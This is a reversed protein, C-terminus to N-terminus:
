TSCNLTGAVACFHYMRAIITLIFYCDTKVFRCVTNLPSMAQALLLPVVMSRGGVLRVRGERM